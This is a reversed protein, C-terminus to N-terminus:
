KRPTEFAHKVVKVKFKKVGELHAALARHRGDGGVINNNEDMHIESPSVPRGNRIENRFHNVTQVDEPTKLISKADSGLMKLYQDPSGAAMKVTPPEVTKAAAREAKTPGVSEWKEIPKGSVDQVLKVGDSGFVRSIIHAPPETGPKVVEQLFDRMNFNGNADQFRKLSQGFTQEFESSQEKLAQAKQAVKSLPADEPLIAKARQFFATDDAAGAKTGIAVPKSPDVPELEKLRSKLVAADTPNSIDELRDRIEQATAPPNELEDFRSRLTDADTPNELSALRDKVAEADVAPAKGKPEPKQKGLVERLKAQIADPDTIVPGATDKPASNASPAVKPAESTANASKAAQYRENFKGLKKIPEPLAAKGADVATEVGAKLAARPDIKGVADGAAMVGAQTLLDAGTDAAADSYSQTPNESANIDRIAGPVQTVGSLASLIGAAMRTAIPPAGIAAGVKEVTNQPRPDFSAPLAKVNDIIRGGVRSLVDKTQNGFIVRPDSLAPDAPTAGASDTDWVVGSNDPAASPAAPNDWVVDNASM